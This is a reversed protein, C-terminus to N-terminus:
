TKWKRITNGFQTSELIFYHTTESTKVFLFRSKKRKEATVLVPIRRWLILSHDAQQKTV